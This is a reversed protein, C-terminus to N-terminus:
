RMAPILRRIRAHLAIWGPFPGVDGLYGYVHELRESTFIGRYKGRDVVAVAPRNAAQMWLHVDYVSDHIEVAMARRDMVDRVLLDRHDGNLHKLIDRRWLIGVVVQEQTVVLDRPGGKIAHALPEDPQVGGDDWLTFQGVEFRRLATEIRVHRLEMWAAVFIFASVLPMLFDGILIGVVALALALVQGITVAIRTATLRNWRASLIARLVRGGDM